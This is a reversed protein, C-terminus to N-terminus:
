FNIHIESCLIQVRDTCFGMTESGPQWNESRLKCIIGLQSDEKQFKALHDFTYSPFIAPQVQINNTPKTQTEAQLYVPIASTHILGQPLIATDVIVDSFNAPNRSLADACLNTKGSRFRIELDFPAIKHLGGRSQIM